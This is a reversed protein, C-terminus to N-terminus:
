PTRKEIKAPILSDCSISIDGYVGSIPISKWGQQRPHKTGVFAFDPIVVNQLMGQKTELTYVSNQQPHIVFISDLPIREGSATEVFNVFASTYEEGVVEHSLGIKLNPLKNEKIQGKYDKLSYSLTCSTPETQDRYITPVWESSIPTRLDVSQPPFHCMTVTHNKSPDPAGSTFYVNNGAGDNLYGKHTFDWNVGPSKHLSSRLAFKPTSDTLVDVSVVWKQTVANIMPYFSCDNDTAESVYKGEIVAGKNFCGRESNFDEDVYTESETKVLLNDFRQGQYGVRVIDIEKMQSPLPTELMAELSGDIYLCINSPPCDCSLPSTKKTDCGELSAVIGLVAGQKLLFDISM